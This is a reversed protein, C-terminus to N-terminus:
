LGGRDRPNLTDLADRSYAYTEYNVRNCPSNSGSDDGSPFFELASCGQMFILSALFLYVKNMCIKKM